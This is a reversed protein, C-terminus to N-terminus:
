KIRKEIKINSIEIMLLNRFILILMNGFSEPYFTFICKEAL